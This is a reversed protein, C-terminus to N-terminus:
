PRDVLVVRRTQALRDGLALRVDGLNGSAGHILVGPWSAGTDAANPADSPPPLDVVHLRGGKVEVFHGAPPHAAEIRRAALPTIMFGGIFVALVLILIGFVFEM